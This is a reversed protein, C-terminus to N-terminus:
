TSEVQVFITQRLMAMLGPEIVEWAYAVGTLLTALGLMFWTSRHMRRGRSKNERIAWAWGGAVALGAVIRFWALSGALWALVAGSAGLALAPFLIPLACCAGCAVMATTSTAVAGAGVAKQATDNPTTDTPVTM